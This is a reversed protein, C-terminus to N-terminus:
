RGGSIKDALTGKACDYVGQLWTDVEVKAGNTVVDLAAQETNAVFQDRVATFKERGTSDPMSKEAGIFLALARETLEATLRRRNATRKVSVAYGFSALVIGALLVYIDM